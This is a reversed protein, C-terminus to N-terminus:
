PLTVDQYDGFGPAKWRVRVPVIEIHVLNPDHEDKFHHRADGHIALMDRKKETGGTIDVTGEVRLQRYDPADFCIEVKDCGKFEALKGSIAYTSSWLRGSDDPCWAFSMTRVRPRDKDLSALAGYKALTVIEKYTEM